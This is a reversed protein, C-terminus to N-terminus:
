ANHFTLLQTIAHVYEHPFDNSVNAGQRFSKCLQLTVAAQSNLLPLARSLFIYLQAM